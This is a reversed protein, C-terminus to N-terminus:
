TILPLCRDETNPLALLFHNIALSGMIKPGSLYINTFKISPSYHVESVLLDYHSGLSGETDKASNPLVKSQNTLPIHSPFEFM